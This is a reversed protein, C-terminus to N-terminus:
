ELEELESEDSEYSDILYEEFEERAREKTVVYYIRNVIHYGQVLYMGDDGDIMTWLRMPDKENIELVQNYDSGFTELMGKTQFETSVISDDYSYKKDFDLETM